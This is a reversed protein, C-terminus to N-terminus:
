SIINNAFNVSGMRSPYGGDPNRIGPGPPAFLVDVLDEIM